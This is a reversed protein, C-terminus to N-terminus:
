FDKVLLFIDTSNITFINNIICKVRENILANYLLPLDKKMIEMTVNVENASEISKLIKSLEIIKREFSTTDELNICHLDTETLKINIESINQIIQNINNRNEIADKDALLINIKM